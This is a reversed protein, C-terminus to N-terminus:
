DVCCFRFYLISPPSLSVAEFWEPLLDDESENRSVDSLSVVMSDEGMDSFSILPGDLKLDEGPEIIEGDDREATLM